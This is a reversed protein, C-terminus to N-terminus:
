SAGKPILTPMNTAEVEDMLWYSFAKIAAHDSDEKRCVIYYSYEAPLTEKFPRVLQGTNLADAVIAGRGLAFGNGEICAQIVHHSHNFGFGQKVKVGHVGFHELFQKWDVSMVDHLLDCDALQGLSDVAGCNELYKPSCVPFIDERLFEHVHLGPWNGDGYRIDLDADGSALINDEVPKTIFRIDIDPFREHFLQLRPLVWISGFSGLMAVTIFIREDDQMVESTTAAMIDFAQSLPGVLIEGEDTLKISRNLRKFLPKGFWTELARIQHSVAAQTVCLEEGARTFSLHRAACEFVRLALLPPLRRAM